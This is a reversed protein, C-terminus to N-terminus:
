HKENAVSEDSCTNACFLTSLNIATPWDDILMSRRVDVALSRYSARERRVRKEACEERVTQLCLYVRRRFDNCAVILSPTSYERNESRILKIGIRFM